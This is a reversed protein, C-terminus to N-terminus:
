NDNHLPSIDDDTLSATVGDEVLAHAKFKPITNSVTNAAMRDYVGPM